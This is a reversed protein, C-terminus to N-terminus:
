GEHRPKFALDKNLKRILHVSATIRHLEALTPQQFTSKESQRNTMRAARSLSGIIPLDPHRHLHHTLALKFSHPAAVPNGLRCRGTSSQAAEFGILRLDLHASSLEADLSAASVLRGVHLWSLLHIWM